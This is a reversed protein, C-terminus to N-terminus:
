YATGPKILEDGTRVAEPPVSGHRSGAGSDGGGVCREFCGHALLSPDHIPGRQDRGFDGRGDSSDGEGAALTEALVPRPPSTASRGDGNVARNWIVRQELQQEPGPQGYGQRKDYGRDPGAYYDSRTGADEGYRPAWVM